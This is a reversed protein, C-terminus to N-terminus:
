PADYLFDELPGRPINYKTRLASKFAEVVELQGHYLACTLAKLLQLGDDDAVIRRIVARSEEKLPRVQSM